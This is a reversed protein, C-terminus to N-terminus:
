VPLNRTRLIDTLTVIVLPTVNDNAFITLKGPDPTDLAYKGIVSGKLISLLADLQTGDITDTSRLIDTLEKAKINFGTTSIYEHTNGSGTVEETVANGDGTNKIHITPNTNDSNQASILKGSSQNLLEITPASSAGGLIIAQGGGYVDIAVGASNIQIGSSNGDINVGFFNGFIDVGGGFSSNIKIGSGSTNDIDIGGTDSVISIGKAAVSEIEVADGDGTNKIHITPTSRTSGMVIAKDSGSVDIAVAESSVAIATSISGVSIGYSSGSVSIGGGNPSDIKVALGTGSSTIDVVPESGYSEAIICSETPHSLKLKEIELKGNVVIGEDIWQKSGADDELKIIIPYDDDRATFWSYLITIHYSGTSGIEVPTGSSFSATTWVTANHYSIIITNSDLDGALGSVWEETAPDRLPFVLEFNGNPNRHIETVPM